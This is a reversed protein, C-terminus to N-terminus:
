YGHKHAWVSYVDALRQKIRYEREDQADLLAFAKNIFKANGSAAIKMIQFTVLKYVNYLEEILECLDDFEPEEYDLEKWFYALCHEYAYKRTSLVPIQELALAVGKLDLSRNQADKGAVFFQLIQRSAANLANFDPKICQQYFNNIADRTYPKAHADNVLLGGEVTPQMFANLIRDKGIIGEWRYDPDYIFWQSPDNTKGVMVYHPFPDRDFEKDIGPLHYMDLMVIIHESDLKNDVLDTLKEANKAKTISTDYWPEVTMGYLTTFGDLMYQHSIDDSHYNLMTKDSVIVEADPVCFYYPRHDLQKQKVLECLCSALCHVKADVYEELKGYWEPLVQDAFLADALDRITTIEDLKRTEDSAHLADNVALRDLMNVVDVSTLALDESLLSNANFGVLATQSTVSSLDQYICETVQQKTKIM